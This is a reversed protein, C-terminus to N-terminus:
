YSFFYRYVTCLSLYSHIYISFFLISFNLLFREWYNHTIICYYMCMINCYLLFQYTYLSYSHISYHSNFWNLYMYLALQSFVVKFWLFFLNCILINSFFLFLINCDLLVTLIKSFIKQCVFLAIFLCLHVFPNSYGVMRFIFLAIMNHYYHLQPAFYLWIDTCKIFGLIIIICQYKCSHGIIISFCFLLIVVQQMFFYVPCDWFCLVPNSAKGEVATLKCDYQVDFSAECVLTCSVTSAKSIIFWKKAFSILNIYVETLGLERVAKPDQSIIFHILFPIFCDDCNLLEMFDSSEIFSYIINVASKIDLQGGAMKQLIILFNHMDRELRSVILNENSDPSQSYNESLSHLYWSYYLQYNLNFEFETIIAHGDSHEAQIYLLFERILRQFRYRLQDTHWYEELLSREVLTQLCYEPDSLNCKSSISQAAARHFSGPFHSLYHSCVQIRDDLYDYSIKLVIFIRQHNPLTSQNFTQMFHKELKDIIAQPPHRKVNILGAVIGLALPNNGVLKAIVKGEDCTILNSILQLLTVASSPDLEKLPFPHFGGVILMQARSTTLIRLYKSAELLETLMEKFNNEHTKNRQLFDDCNDLILLTDNTLEKAWAILKKSSSLVYKQKTYSYWPIIKAKHFTLATTADVANHMSTPKYSADAQRAFLHHAENMNLYKVSMGKSALVHGVHIALTSKGVAPPGFISVMAVYSSSYLLMHSIESLESERGVFPGGVHPLNNHAPLDSEHHLSPKELETCTFNNPVSQKATPSWSYWVFHLTGGLFVVTVLSALLVGWFFRNNVLWM